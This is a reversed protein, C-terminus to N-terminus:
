SYALTGAPFAGERIVQDWLCRDAGGWLSSIPIDFAHCLEPQAPSAASSIFPLPESESCSRSCGSLDEETGFSPLPCCLCPRVCGGPWRWCLLPLNIPAPQSCPCVLQQQWRCPGLDSRTLRCNTEQAIGEKWSLLLELVSGQVRAQWCCWCLLAWAAVADM